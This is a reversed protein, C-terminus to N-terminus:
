YWESTPLWLGLDSMRNASVELDFVFLSSSQRKVFAPVTSHAGQWLPAPLV